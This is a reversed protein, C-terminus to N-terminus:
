APEPAFNLRALLALLGEAFARGLKELVVVPVQVVRRLRRVDRRAGRVAARAACVRCAM